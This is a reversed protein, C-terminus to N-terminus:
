DSRWFQWWQRAKPAEIAAQQLRLASALASRLYDREGTLQDVLVTLKDVQAQLRAVEVTMDVRDTEAPVVGALNVLLRRGDRKYALKNASVMRRVTRESKGLQGAAEQITCWRERDGTDSV